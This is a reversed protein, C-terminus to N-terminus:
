SSDGATPSFGVVWRAFNSVEYAGPTWAPLSLLVPGAGAVDFSMAVQIARRTATTSDYTLDYRVNAIPASRVPPPPVPTRQQAHAEPALLIMLAAIGWRPPLELSM